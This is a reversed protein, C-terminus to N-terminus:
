DIGLAPLLRMYVHRTACALHHIGLAALSQMEDGSIATSCRIGFPTPLAMM